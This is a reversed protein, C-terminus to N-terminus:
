QDLFSKSRVFAKIMDRMPYQKDQTAKMIATIEQMDDVDPKLGTGYIHLNKLLGRVIDSQYDRAVIQKFQSWTTFQEGRPLNGAADVPRTNGVGKWAIKGDLEARYYSEHEVDRWRGSIDFNQFAFGVPDMHRHCVACNVDEQHQKLLERFPKGKNGGESPNLEPVELPPPPPPHNLVHRLTWAGRYIVWNDGMWTLMSQIGAHGLIGGGRPDDKRLEVKRLMGGDLAPYGYHIALIDNMMTWNSDVLESAPRNDAIIRAIYAITEERMSAKLHRAFRFDQKNIHASVITIPQDLELWQMVFPEIFAKSRPDALLRDVQADLVAPERLKGAAALALLEADPPAGILMFSLRSALMYQRTSPSADTASSLYRFPGSMLVSQFAARLADDFSFEQTRLERYFKVFPEREAKTTPRRWARDIWLTLLKEASAESDSVAIDTKWAAPPWAAAFDIEVEISHLVIYPAPQKEPPLVTRDFAPRFLGTGGEIPPDTPRSREENEFGEIAYPVEVRNALSVNVGRSGIALDGLHVQYVFEQPQDHAASVEPYDIDRGGVEVWLRPSPIGEFPKIVSAVVKLRVVGQGDAPVPLHFSLADRDGVARPELLLGVGARGIGHAKSNAGQKKWDDLVKRPDKSESLNATFVTGRAPELFRIGAVARRSVRMWQEISDAADQLGDAGTDFGAVKGDGPLGLSFDVTLGTLDRLAASVERRNLRRTGGTGLARQQKEIWRLITAKEADSPQPKKSPPMEGSSIKEHVMTWLDRDGAQFGTLKDYRILAEQKQAGHCAHCYKTLLPSIATDFSDGQARASAATLAILFIALVAAVVRRDNLLFAMMANIVSHQTISAADFNLLSTCAPYM